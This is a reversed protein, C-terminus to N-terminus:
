GRGGGPVLEPYRGLSAILITSLVFVPVVGLVAIWYSGTADFVVSGALPGLGAGLSLFAIITGFIVGYNALGFYRTTLYAIVEIEAGVSLGVLIAIAIGGVYSIDGGSMALLLLCAVSPLLFAAGAVWRGDIRDILFGGLLRGTISSIGIASAIGAATGAALGMTRMIPVFHVVLMTISGTVLLTAMALQLFRRSGIVRWIEARRAAPAAVSAHPFSPPAAQFFLFMLPLLLLASVGGMLLFTSKWGIWAIASHVAFPTIAGALGTGCLTLAFALGRAKVFRSAVAATWVTPKMLLAGIAVVVWLGFWIPQSAGAIALSALGACYIAVGPIGIRRVGHRDILLGVLPAFLVTMSATVLLGATITTREWGLDRQIPEIFIGMSYVHLVSVTMGLCSTAVLPWGAKWEGIGGSSSM